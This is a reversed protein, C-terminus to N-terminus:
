KRKLYAFFNEKKDIEQIILSKIVRWNEKKTNFTIRLFNQKFKSGPQKFVLAIAKYCGDPHFTMSLQM